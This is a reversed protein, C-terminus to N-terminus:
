KERECSLRFNCVMQAHVSLVSKFYFAKLLITGKIPLIFVVQGMDRRSKRQHGTLFVDFVGCLSMLLARMPLATLFACKKLLLHNAFNHFLSDNFLRSLTFNLRNNLM